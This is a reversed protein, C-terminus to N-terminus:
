LLCCAGFCLCAIGAGIIAPLRGLADDWGAPLHLGYLDSSAHLRRSEGPVLNWTLRQGDVRDANHDGIKGPLEVIWSVTALRCGM